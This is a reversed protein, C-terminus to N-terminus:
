GEVIRGSEPAVKGVGAIVLETTTPNCVAIGHLYQRRWGGNSQRFRKGLPSGLRQARSFVEPWIPTRTWPGPYDVPGHEDNGHYMPMAHDCLLCIAAMDEGVKEVREKTWNSKAFREYLVVKGAADLALIGPGWSPDGEIYYRFREPHQETVFRDEYKITQCSPVGRPVIFDKGGNISDGPHLHAMHYAARQYWVNPNVLGVVGPLQTMIALDDWHIGAWAPSHVAHSILWDWPENRGLDVAWRGASWGPIRQGHSDRVWWGNQKVAIAYNRNLAETYQLIPDEADQVCFNLLAREPADQHPLGQMIADTYRHHPDYWSAGPLYLAANTM